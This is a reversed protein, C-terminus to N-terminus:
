KYFYIGLRSLIFGLVAYVALANFLYFLIGLVISLLVFRVLFLFYIPIKQKNKLYELQLYLHGFYLFGTLLGTFFLLLEKM